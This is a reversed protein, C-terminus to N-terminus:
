QNKIYILCKNKAETIELFKKHNGGVDPHHIKALKRYTNKIDEETSDESIELISFSESPVPNSNKFINNFLSYFFDGFGFEHEEWRRYEEWRRRKEEKEKRRRNMEDAFLEERMKCIVSAYFYKWLKEPLGGVTKNNISDWKQRIARITNEFGSLVFEGSKTKGIELLSLFDTTLDKIFENHNFKNSTNLNYKKVYHIPKM